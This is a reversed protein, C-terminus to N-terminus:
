LTTAADSVCTLHFYMPPYKLIAISLLLNSSDPINYLLLYCCLEGFTASTSASNLKIFFIALFVFCKVLPNIVM